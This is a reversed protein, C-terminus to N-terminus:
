ELVVGSYGELRNVWSPQSLMLLVKREAMIPLDVADKNFNLLML